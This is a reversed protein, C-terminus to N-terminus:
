DFLIKYQIVVKWVPGWKLGLDKPLFTPAIHSQQLPTNGNTNIAGWTRDQRVEIPIYPSQSLWINWQNRMSAIQAYLKADNTYRDNRPERLRCNLYEIHKKWECSDMLTSAINAEITEVVADIKTNTQAVSANALVLLATWLYTQISKNMSLFIKKISYCLGMM